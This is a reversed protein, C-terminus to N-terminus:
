PHGRRQVQHDHAERDPDTESQERQSDPNLGDWSGDRTIGGRREFDSQAQRPIWASAPKLGHAVVGVFFGLFWGLFPQLVGSLFPLKGSAAIEPASGAQQRLVPQGGTFAVRLEMLLHHVRHSPIRDLM